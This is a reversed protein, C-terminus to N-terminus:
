REDGHAVALLGEMIRAWIGNRSWRNYRNFCTTYPGYREPLDRWPIGTRLVLFIGNMVKSDNKRVPGPRGTPLFKRFLRWEGDTLEHRKSSM